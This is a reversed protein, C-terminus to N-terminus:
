RVAAPSPRLAASPSLVTFPGISTGQFPYHLKCGEKVAIDVIETVIDYEKKIAASLGDKDLAQRKFLYLAYESLWWPVHLWVNAVPIERAVEAIWVCPGCRCADCFTRLHSTRAM